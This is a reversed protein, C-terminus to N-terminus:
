SRQPLVNFPISIGEKAGALLFTGNKNTFHELHPDSPQSSRTQLRSLFEKQRYIKGSLRWAALHLSKLSPHLEGDMGTIIKHDLPLLIPFDVLMELVLPFWGKNPWWSLIAIVEAEERRIKALCRMVLSQPPYLYYLGEDWPMSLPDRNLSKPDPLRACYQPLKTNLKSAFLDVLPLGWHHFLRDAVKQDLSWEVSRMCDRSLIQGPRSLEDALRNDEGAVHVADLNIDRQVCWTVIERAAADLDPSRMGGQHKLYAVVTANDSQVLLDGQRIEDQFAQLAKLVTKTELVNIHLAQETQSWAGSITRQQYHAGFHTTSADTTTVHKVKSPLFSKGKMLNEVHSWFRLHPHWAEDLVIIKDLPDRLNTYQLNMLRSLPRVHFMCWQIMELCATLKGIFSLIERAPVETSSMLHRAKQSIAVAKDRPVTVTGDQTCIKAGLHVLEQAPQLTSKKLNLVFGLALLVEVTLDKNQRCMDQSRAAGLLDDLYPSLRHGMNHIYRMVPVLVKTFIRPSATHGFPLVIWQYVEVQGSSGSFAFRLYKHFRQNIPVHLYADKLDISFLFDDKQLLQLISKLTEMRFKEKLMYHNFHKLNLIPRFGGDAKTVLFYTSYFGPSKQYDTVRIVAQKQLLEDVLTILTNRQDPPLRTVLPKTTLPPQAVFSFKYGTEIIDLVWPDSTVQKWNDLFQPLRGGM